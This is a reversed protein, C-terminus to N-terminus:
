EDWLDLIKYMKGDHEFEVGCVIDYRKFIERIRELGSKRSTAFADVFMKTVTRKNPDAGDSM